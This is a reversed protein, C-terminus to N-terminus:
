VESRTNIQQQHDRNAFWQITRRAIPVWLRKLREEKGNIDGLNGEKNSGEVGLFRPHVVIESMSRKEVFKGSILEGSSIDSGSGVPFKKIKEEFERKRKIEEKVKIVQHDHECGHDYKNSSVCAVSEKGNHFLKSSLSTIMESKLFLLDSSSLNSWRNKGMLDHDYGSIVIRHNFKHLINQDDDNDDDVEEEIKGVSTRRSEFRASGEREVFLELNSGKRASEDNLFRLSGSYAFGIVDEKTVKCRCLPCGSHKELWQDVCDIHFAHKCKPLLRLVEVDEFRSLCISCELGNRWGKLTSFRFFPLSEIVTKDIGSVVRSFSTPLAAGLNEQNLYQPSAPRHCCKAYLLLIFTLCFMFSLVGIVVALSPQFNTESDLSSSSNSLDNSPSSSLSQSNTSNSFIIIVSIIIMVLVHLHKEQSVPIQPFEPAPFKM